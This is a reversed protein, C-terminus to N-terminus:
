GVSFICHLLENVEFYLGERELSDMRNQLNEIFKEQQLWKETLEEKTISALQEPSIYVKEFTSCPDDTTGEEEEHDEEESKTKFSTVQTAAITSSISASPTFSSVCTVTAPSLTTVTTTTSASTSAINSSVSIVDGVTTISPTSSQLLPVPQSIDAPQTTIATNFSNNTVTAITTTITSASTSVPSTTETTVVNDEEGGGSM